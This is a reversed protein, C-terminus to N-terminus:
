NHTCSWPYQSIQPFNMFSTLVDLKTYVSLLPESFIPHADWGQQRPRQRQSLFFSAKWAHVLWCAPLLYQLWQFLVLFTWLEGDSHAPPTSPPRRRTMRGSGWWAPPLRTCSTRRRTWGRAPPSGRWGSPGQRTLKCSNKSTETIFFIRRPVGGVHFISQTTGLILLYEGSILNSSINQYKIIFLVNEKKLSFYFM